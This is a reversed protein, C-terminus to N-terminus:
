QLTIYLYRNTSPPSSITLVLNFLTIVGGLIRCNEFDGLFYNFFERKKKREKKKKFSIKTRKQKPNNCIESKHSNKETESKQSHNEMEFKQISKRFRSFFIRIKIYFKQENRLSIEKLFIM